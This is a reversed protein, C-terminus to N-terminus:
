APQWAFVDFLVRNSEQNDQLEIKHGDQDTSVVTGDSVAFEPVTYLPLTSFDSAIAKDAQQLDSIRKAYDLQVSSDTLLQDVRSDSFGQSNNGGGKDRSLYISTIGSKFPTGTWAALAVQYDGAPQQQGNFGATFYDQIQIGAARCEAAIAQVTAERRDDTKHSITITATQGDKQLFGNPGMTWGHSTLLNRAATEDGNGVNAFDDQYGTETQALLVSGLPKMQPFVDAIVKSIIDKRNVCLSLAQRLEPYKQFTANKLQYDLHEYAYSLGTILKDAGGSRVVQAVHTDLQGSLVNIEKNQLQQYAANVKPNVKIDVEAPGAQNGWWRPNRVLVTEANGDASQIMYPGASLDFQPNLGIFGPQDSNVGGSYFNAVKTLAAMTVPDPKDPSLSTLNRVATVDELVHAPVLNGFMNPWDAWPSSFHVTVTKGGNSCDIKSVHDFGVLLQSFAAALSGSTNYNALWQLYFDDCSVPAGDQWVAKPNIHYEIVQPNTSVERISTTLDGDPQVKTANAVDNIFFASPQILNDVYYNGITNDSSLQTNYNQFAAEVSVTVKGSSPVKPRQYPHGLDVTETPNSNTPGNNVTSSVDRPGGTCGSLAITATAILAAAGFAKTRRM